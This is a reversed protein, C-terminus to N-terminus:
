LSHFKVKSFSHFKISISLKLLYFFAYRAYVGHFRDNESIGAYRDNRPLVTNFSEFAMPPM